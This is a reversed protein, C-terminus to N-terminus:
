FGFGIFGLGLLRFGMVKPFPAVVVSLFFVM